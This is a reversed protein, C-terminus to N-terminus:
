GPVPRLIEAVVLTLMAATLIGCAIGIRLRTLARAGQQMEAQYATPGDLDVMLKPMGAAAWGTYAVAHLALVIAVVLGRRVLEPDVVAEATLNPKNILLVAGFVALLGAFITRWKEATEQTRALFERRTKHAEADWHGRDYFSFFKGEIRFGAKPLRYVKVKRLKGRETAGDELKVERGNRLKAERFWVDKLGRRQTAKMWVQAEVRKSCERQMVWAVVTVVALIALPEGVHSM